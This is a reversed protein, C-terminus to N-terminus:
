KSAGSTDVIKRAKKRPVCLVKRKIRKCTGRREERDREKGQGKKSGRNKFRHFPSFSLSESKKPRRKARGM